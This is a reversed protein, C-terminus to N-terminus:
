CPSAVPAPHAARYLNYRRHLDTQLEHLYDIYGCLYDKPTKKYDLNVAVRIDVEMDKKQRDVYEVGDPWESRENLLDDAFGGYEAPIHFADSLTLTAPQGNKGIYVYAGIRFVVETRDESYAAEVDELDYCYSLVLEVLSQKKRARLLLFKSTFFDRMQSMLMLILRDLM